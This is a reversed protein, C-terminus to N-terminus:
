QEGGRKPEPVDFEHEIDPDVILVRYQEPELLIKYLKGSRARYYIYAQGEEVMAWLEMGAGMVRGDNVVLKCLLRLYLM